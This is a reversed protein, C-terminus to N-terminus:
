DLGDSGYGTDPSPNSSHLSQLLILVFPRIDNSTHRTLMRMRMPWLPTIGLTQRSCALCASAVVSPPADLYRVDELSATLFFSFRDLLARQTVVMCSIKKGHLLDGITVASRMFLEAFEAITPMTLDWEFFTLILLEMHKIDKLPYKETAYDNMTGFSCVDGHEYKVAVLICGLAVLQLHSPKINHRDMFHDLLYIALHVARKSLGLDEAVHFIWEILSPRSQLQLRTVHLLCM